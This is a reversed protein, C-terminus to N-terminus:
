PSSRDSLMVGVAPFQIARNRLQRFVLPLDKKQDTEFSHVM